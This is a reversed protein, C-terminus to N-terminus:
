PAKPYTPGYAGPEPALVDSDGLEGAKVGAPLIPLEHGAVTAARPLSFAGHGTLVGVVSSAGYMAGHVAAAMVSGVLGALVPYSPDTGVVPYSQLIEIIRSLPTSATAVASGQGAMGFLEALGTPAMAIAVAMAGFNMSEAVTAAAVATSLGVGQESLYKVIAQAAVAAAEAAFSAALIEQIGVTGLAGLKASGVQAEARSAVISGLTTAGGVGSTQLVDVLAATASAVVQGIDSIGLGRAVSVLGGYVVEAAESDGRAADLTTSLYALLGGVTTDTLVKGLSVSSGSDAQGSGSSARASSLTQPSEGAAGGSDSVGPYVGISASAGSSAGGSGTSAEYIALTTDVTLNQQASPVELEAWTIRYTEGAGLTTPTFRLRLDSYDTIADAQATSLTISFDVYGRAVGAANVLTAITTSGQLLLVTHKEGGGSGAVYTRFRVVHGSGSAPDTASGLKVELGSDQTQTQVYDADDYSTEDIYTYYAATGSSRTWNTTTIDSGPRAYQAM